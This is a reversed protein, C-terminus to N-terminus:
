QAAVKGLYVWGVTAPSEPPDAGDPAFWLSGPGLQGWEGGAGGGGAQASWAGTHWAGRTRELTAPRTTAGVPVSAIFRADDGLVSRAGAIYESLAKPSDTDPHVEVNFSVTVQQGELITVQEQIRRADRAGEDFATM